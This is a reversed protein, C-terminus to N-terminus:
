GLLGTTLFIRLLMSAVGCSVRSISANCCIREDSASIVSRTQLSGYHDCRVMSSSCFTFDASWNSLQHTRRFSSPLSRLQLGTLVILYYGLAVGFANPAGQTLSVFHNGRKKGIQNPARARALGSQFFLLNPTPHGKGLAAAEAAKGQASINQGKLAGSALHSSVCHNSVAPRVM